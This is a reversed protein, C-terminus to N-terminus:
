PRLRRPAGGELRRYARRRVPRHASRRPRAGGSRGHPSRGRRGAAPRTFSLPRPARAGRGTRCGPALQTLETASMSPDRAPQPWAGGRRSPFPRVRDAMVSGAFRSRAARSTRASRGSRQAMPAVGVQRNATSSLEDHGREFWSLYDGSASAASHTVRQPCLDSRAHRSSPSSARMDYRSVASAGRAAAEGQRNRTTPGRGKHAMGYRGALRLRRPQPRLWREGSRYKATEVRRGQTQMVTPHEDHPAEAGREIVRILLGPRAMGSRTPAGPVPVAVRNVSPRTRNAPPAQGTAHDGLDVIRGRSSPRRRRLHDM